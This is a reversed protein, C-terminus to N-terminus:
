TTLGEIASEYLGLIEEEHDRAIASAKKWRGAHMWDQDDGQVLGAYPTANVLQFSGGQDLPSARQWGRKLANTRTYRQGPRASPYDTLADVLIRRAQGSVTRLMPQIGNGLKAIAAQVDPLQPIDILQSM